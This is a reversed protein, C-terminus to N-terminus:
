DNETDWDEEIDWDEADLVSFETLAPDHQFDDAMAAVYPKLYQHREELPLAAIQQLSPHSQAAVTLKQLLFEVFDLVEQQRNAPLSRLKKLIAQEIQVTDTM